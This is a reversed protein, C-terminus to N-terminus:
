KWFQLKDVLEDKLDDVMELKDQVAELADGLKETVAPLGEAFKKAVAKLLTLIAVVLRKIQQAFTQMVKGLNVLRLLETIKRQAADLDWTSSLFSEMTSTCAQCFNLVRDLLETCTGAKTSVGQFGRVGAPVATLIDAQELSTRAQDLEGIDTEVDLPKEEDNEATEKPALNDTLIAPLKAFAAQVRDVMATMQSAFDLILNDMTSALEIAQHMDGQPKTLSRIATLSQADMDKVDQLQSQITASKDVLNRSNTQADVCTKRASQVQTVCEVLVDRAMALASWLDSIRDATAKFLPVLCQILKGAAEAILQMDESLRLCRLIDRSKSAVEVPNMTELAVAIDSVSTAFTRVADFLSRSRQAKETLQTFAEVGVTLATALNMNQISEICTQVDNMDRDLDKLLEQVNDDKDDDQQAQARQEIINQLAPPFCDMGDEMADIMAKSKEVCQMAVVDLGQAIEMAAKVKDGATLEKITTLLSSASNKDGTEGSTFKTLTAQIEEGFDIMQQRKTMTTDCIAVTERSLAACERGKALFAQVNESWDDVWDCRETVEEKVKDRVKDYVKDALRGVKKLWKGM